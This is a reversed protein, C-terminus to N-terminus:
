KLDHEGAHPVPGRDARRLFELVARIRADDLRRDLMPVQYAGLLARATADAVLMSDPNRIMAEIWRMERRRTVGALDPGVVPGGGLTHCAACQRRFTWAGADALADDVPDGPAPLPADAAAPDPAPGRECAGAVVVGALLLALPRPRARPM